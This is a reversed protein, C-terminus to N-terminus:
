ARVIVKAKVHRRAPQNYLFNLDTDSVLLEEPPNHSPRPQQSSRLAGEEVVVYKRESWANAAQARRTKLCEKDRLFAKARAQLHRWRVMEDEHPERGGKTRTLSDVAEDVAVALKEHFFAQLKVAKQSQPLSDSTIKQASLLRDINLHDVM